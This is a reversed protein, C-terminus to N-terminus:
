TIDFFNAVKRKAAMIRNAQGAVFTTAWVLLEVFGATSVFVV